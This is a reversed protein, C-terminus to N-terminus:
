PQYLVASTVGVGGEYGIDSGGVILVRGDHLLTATHDNRPTGMSGLPQVKGTGPDYMETSALVRWHQGDSWYGGAIFVRGDPLLTATHEQRGDVMAGTPSFTGSRPDYTEASRYVSDRPSRGGLVLVRGDQLLTATHLWRGTKMSGTRHFTGTTPDFLEASTSSAYGEGGGGTVLVRGDQLLTATHHDRFTTMSGTRSFTGTAPDFIEATALVSAASDATQISALIAGGAASAPQGSVGGAILVRGDALLTATHNERPARMAGTPSFAGSAPDYIEASAWIGDKGAAACNYGGTFLVRGDSLRTATKGGRAVSLSGTPSFSGTALDYLEAATGCGETVLVRGDNLLTATEGLPSDEKTTPVAAWTFGPALDPTPTPSPTSAPPGVAIAPVPTWPPPAIAPGGLPQLSPRSWELEQADLGIAAASVLITADTGDAAMTWWGPAAADASGPGRTFLIRGDATWGPATAEGDTTLRRLDSGDSGITYIDGFNTSSEDPPTAVPSIFAIRAGDPSWSADQADLSLPSVQHLNQGDADVIFVGSAIRPLPGGSDKTGGRWFVIRTADPSWGPRGGGAPSTSTLEAARGSALEMTVLAAHGEGAVDTSGRVFVISRGDRSFAVQSDVCVPPPANPDRCGTDVPQSEGGNPDTLFLKGDDSYLLRSGDPTFGQFEQIGLGDTFLERAGRGDSGAVWLRSTPCSTDQHSCTTQKQVPRTFAILEGTRINANASPTAIPSSSPGSTAVVADSPQPPVVTTLRLLGSGVALAGGVLLIAAAALVMFGRGRSLPRMPGPTTAPIAVLSDRLETPAAENEGAQDSYWTRLQRELERDTM